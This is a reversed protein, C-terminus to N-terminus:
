TYQELEKGTIEVWKEYLEVDRITGRFFLSGNSQRQKIFDEVTSADRYLLHKVLASILLDKQKDTLAKAFCNM